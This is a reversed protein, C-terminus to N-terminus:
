LAQAGLLELINHLQIHKKKLKFLEGSKNRILTEYEDFEDDAYSSDDDEFDPVNAAERRTLLRRQYNTLIDSSVSSIPLYPRLSSPNNTTTAIVTNNDISHGGDSLFLPPPELLSGGRDDIATLTFNMTRTTTTLNGLSEALPEVTTSTTAFPTTAVAAKIMVGWYVLAMIILYFISSMDTHRRQAGGSGSGNAYFLKYLSTKRKLQLTAAEAYAAFLNYTLM